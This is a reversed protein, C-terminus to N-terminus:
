IWLWLGCGSDQSRSVAAPSVFRDVAVKHYAESGGLYPNKLKRAYDGAIEDYMKRTIEIENMRKSENHM